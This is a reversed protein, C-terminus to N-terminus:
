FYDRFIMGVLLQTFGLTVSCLRSSLRYRYSMRATMNWRYFWNSLGIPLLFVRGWERMTNAGLLCSSVLTFAFDRWCSRDLLLLSAEKVALLSFAASFSFWVCKPEYCLCVVAETPRIECKLLLVLKMHLYNWSYKLIDQYWNWSSNLKKSFHHFSVVSM